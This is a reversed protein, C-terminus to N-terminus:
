VTLETKFEVSFWRTENRRSEQGPNRGEWQESVDQENEMELDEMYSSVVLTGKILKSVQLNSHSLSKKTQAGADLSLNNSDWNDTIPSYHFCRM